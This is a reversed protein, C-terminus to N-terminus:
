RGGDCRNADHAEIVIKFLQKHHEYLFEKLKDEIVLGPHDIGFLSNKSLGEDHEEEIQIFEECLKALPIENM